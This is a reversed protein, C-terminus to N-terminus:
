DYLLSILRYSYIVIYLLTKVGKTATPAARIKHASLHHCFVHAAEVNRGTRRTVHAYCHFQTRPVGIVYVKDWSGVSTFHGGSNGFHFPNWQFLWWTQPCMGCWGRPKHASALEPDVRLITRKSSFAPASADWSVELPFVARSKRSSDCSITWRIRVKPRPILLWGPFKWQQMM